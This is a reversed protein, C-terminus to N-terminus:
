EIILKKVSETSGTKIKLYYIGPTVNKLDMSINNDGYVPNEYTTEKIEQGLANVLTVFISNASENTFNINVNKATVPNPFVNFHNDLASEEIGLVTFSKNISIDTSVTTSFGTQAVTSTGIIFLPFKSAASYFLNYNVKVTATGGTFSVTETIVATTKLVNQFTYGPLALTGTGDGTMSSTGNITYSAKTEAFNDAFSSGYSFPMTLQTMPNSYVDCNSATAVASGLSENLTSSIKYVNYNGSGTTSGITAGTFLSANPVSSMPVYTVSSVAATPSITINTYNWFKNTGSTPMAIGATNTAVSGDVDGVVPNSSSTITYQANLALTAFFSISLLLKKM